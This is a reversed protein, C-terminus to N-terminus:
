RAEGCPSKEVHICKIRYGCREAGTATRHNSESNKFVPFSAFATEETEEIRGYPRIKFRVYQTKSNRHGTKLLHIVGYAFTAQKICM